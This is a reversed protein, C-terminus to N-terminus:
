APDERHSLRSDRLFRNLWRDLSSVEVPLTGAAHIAALHLFADLRVICNRNDAISQLAAAATICSIRDFTQLEGVLHGLTGGIQEFTHGEIKQSEEIFEELLSSISSSM